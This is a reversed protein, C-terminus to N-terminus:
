TLRSSAERKENHRGAQAAAIVWAQCEIARARLLVEWHAEGTPRTFASPVTIVEAGMTHVLQQYLEPFRLDYCVSLGLRGAPSDCVVLENGPATTNSEMLIPGNTVDVDFLHVKRYKAALRGQNNLVVHCNYIHNADPGTEQFGGLSLWLGCSRALQQYQQMLPGDLSQASALTEAQSAQLSAFAEPLFLMAAGAAVAEHALKSCVALNELQNAGSTLQGVAIRCIGSPQPVMDVLPQPDKQQATASIQQVQCQVVRTLPSCLLLNRSALAKCLAAAM